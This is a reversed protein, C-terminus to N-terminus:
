KKREGYEFDKSAEAQSEMRKILEEIKKIAKNNLCEDVLCFALVVICILMVVIM